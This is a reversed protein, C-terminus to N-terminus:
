IRYVMDELNFQGMKRIVTFNNRIVGGTVKDVAHKGFKKGGYRVLFISVDTFCVMTFPPPQM